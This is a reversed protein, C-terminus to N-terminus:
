ADVRLSNLLAAIGAEDPSSNYATWSLLVVRRGHAVAASVTNAEIDDGLALSIATRRGELGTDTTFATTPGVYTTSTNQSAADVTGQQLDDLTGRSGFTPPYELLMVVQASPDTRPDDTYWTGIMTQGEPMSALVASLDVLTTADIWVEPIDAAVTESDSIVAVYGPPAVDETTVPAGTYESSIPEFKPLVVVVLAAVLALGLVGAVGLGWWLGRKSRKVPTPEPYTSADPAVGPTMVQGYAPTIARGGIEDYGQELPSPAPALPQFAQQPTPQLALQPTPHPAPQPKAQTHDTWATGDWYRMMAPDSPDAYWNAPPLSM